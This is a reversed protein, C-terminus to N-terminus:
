ENEKLINEIVKALGLPYRFEDSQTQETGLEIGFAEELDFIFGMLAFSDIHGHDLYRYELKEDMTKSDIKGHKEILEIVKTQITNM